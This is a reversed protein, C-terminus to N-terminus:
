RSRAAQLLAPLSVAELDKARLGRLIGPLAEATRSTVHLVVISGPRVSSLVRRRIADSSIGTWDAPDVDWLVTWRFGEAGVGALTTAGLEGGPPRFFPAPTTRARRWWAAQDHRVKSRIVSESVGVVSDHDWGHAGVANGLAVTRRPLSGSTALVTGVCFFTAEARSAALTDLIRRWADLSGCDDFTLAIRRGAGDVRRLVSSPVARHSRFPRPRSTRANGLADRTDIEVRYLGPMVPRSGPARADWAVTIEGTPRTGLRAREIRRDEVDRVTFGVAIRASFRDRGVFTFRVPGTTRLPEPAVDRWAFTPPTTDLVIPATRTDTGDDGLVTAVVRYRADRVRHGADDRGRWVLTIAGDAPEDEALTRVIAGRRTTIRVSVTAPADTAVVITAEDHRGDNNPSFGWPVVLAVSSAGTSAGALTGLILVVALPVVLRRRPRM